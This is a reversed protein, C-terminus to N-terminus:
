ESAEVEPRDFAAALYEPDEERILKLLRVAVGYIAGTPMGDSRSLDRIAYFSRYCLANGDILYVRPM